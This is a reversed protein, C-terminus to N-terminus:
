KKIFILGMILSLIAISVIATEYSFGGLDTEQFIKVIMQLVSIIFDFFEQM